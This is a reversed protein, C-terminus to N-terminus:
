ITLVGRPNQLPDDWFADQYKVFLDPPLITERKVAEVRRRVKHFGPLGLRKDFEPADFELDDFKHAFAPEGLIDYIQQMVEAPQQTITEYRVAVLKDAYESFWAQRLGSMPYGVFGAGSRMMIEVRDYVTAPFDFMRSPAMNTAQAYREVSDLIWSPNRVCCLVRSNPFLAALTPLFACWGRSTDFVVSNPGSVEEYFAEFVGRLVKIRTRETVNLAVDNAAGMTRCLNTFMDHVPASMQAHFRPNQRLIAALMTSGSRPLGSIFHIQLSM